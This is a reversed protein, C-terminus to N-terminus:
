KQLYHMLIADKKDPGQLIEYNELFKADTPLGVYLVSGNLNSLFTKILTDPIYGIYVNNFKKFDYNNLLTRYKNQSIVVEPDEKTYLPYAFEVADIRDAIIVFDYRDKNIVAVESALKGPYAWFSSFQNPALFYLKQAFFIFQIAFGIAVILLIKKKRNDLIISLGLTSFLLLPPLM